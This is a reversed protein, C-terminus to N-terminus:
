FNKYLVIRIGGDFFYITAINCNLFEGPVKSAYGNYLIEGAQGLYCLSIKCTCFDVFDRLLM